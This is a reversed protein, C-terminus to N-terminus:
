ELVVLEQQASVLQDERVLVNAIKGARPARVLHEMKMSEFALLATNAAVVQQSKVFVRVIRGPFPALIRSGHEAQAAASRWPLATVCLSEGQLAIWDEQPLSRLLAMQPRQEHQWSIREVGPTETNEIQLQDLLTSKQDEAKSSQRASVRLCLPERQLLELSLSHQSANVLVSRQFAQTQGLQWFALREFPSQANSSSAQARLLPALLSLAAAIRQLVAPEPLSSFRLGLDCLSFPTSATQTSGALEVLLPLNSTLGALRSGQLLRLLTGFAQERNAGQAILKAILSDFHHTVHDGPLYGSDVRQSADSVPAGDTALDLIQLTGAIPVLNNRPDEACLRVEVAHGCSPMSWLKPAVQTEAPLLAELREGAAIRLQLEVLDYGTVLESVPHEVQLRSNVELFCLQQQKEQYLFEVTGASRYHVHSTLKFAYQHLAQRVQAPLFPAPAEELVKQHRRQLSCDRDGFLAIAGSGDGLVQVEIHRVGPSTIPLLKEIFITADGFAAQAERAAAQCAEELQSAAGVQRMGKGGGGASAKVLLPFGIRTAQAQIRTLAARTLRAPVSFGPNLPVGLRQALARARLKDGLARITKATPGVFAVGAKQLQAAFEANEALFGYGPHLAEVKHSRAIRVIEALALHSSVEVIQDALRQAAHAGDRPDVLLVSRIGLRRCSRLIRCAIEGRNAILLSRLM